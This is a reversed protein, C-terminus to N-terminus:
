KEARGDRAPPINMLTPYMIAEVARKDIYDKYKAEYEKRLEAEVQSRIRREEEEKRRAEEEAKRREEEEAQRRAQEARRKEEAERQAIRRAEEPTPGPNLCRKWAQGLIVRSIILAADPVFALLSLLKDEGGAMIAIVAGVVTLLCILLTYLSKASRLQGKSNRQKMFVAGSIFMASVPWTLFVLSQVFRADRFLFTKEYNYEDVYVMCALSMATILCAEVSAWFVAGAGTGNGSRKGDVLKWILTLVAAAVQAAMMLWDKLYFIDAQHWQSYYKTEGSYEVWIGGTVDLGGSPLFTVSSAMIILAPLAAFFLFILFKRKM